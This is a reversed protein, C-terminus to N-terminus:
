PRIPPEPPQFKPVRLSEISTRNDRDLQGSTVSTSLGSCVEDVFGVAYVYTILKRGAVVVKKGCFLEHPTTM